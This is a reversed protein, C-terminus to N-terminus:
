PGELSCLPQLQLLQPPRQCSTMYWASRCCANYQCDHKSGNCAFTYVLFEPELRLPQVYAYEEPTHLHALNDVITKYLLLATHVTDSCPHIVQPWSNSVGESPREVIIACHQALAKPLERGSFVLASELSEMGVLPFTAYYVEEQHVKSSKDARIRWKAQSRLSLHGDIPKKSNSVASLTPVAQIVTSM